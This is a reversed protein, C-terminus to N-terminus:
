LYTRRPMSVEWHGSVAAEVWIRIPRGGAPTFPLWAGGAPSANLSPSLSSSTRPAKRM